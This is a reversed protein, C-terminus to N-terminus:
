QMEGLRQRPEPSVMLAATMPFPPAGADLGGHRWRRSEAPAAPDSQML